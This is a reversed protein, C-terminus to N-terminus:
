DPVDLVVGHYSITRWGEPATEPLASTTPTSTTTTTTRVAGPKSTSTTPVATTTTTTAVAISEPSLTTPTSVPQSPRTGDSTRVAFTAGRSCAATGVVFVVLGVAWMPRM